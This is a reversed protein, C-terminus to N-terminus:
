AHLRVLSMARYGRFSTERDIAM